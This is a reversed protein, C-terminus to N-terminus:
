EGPAGQGGAVYRSATFNIGGIIRQTQPDRILSWTEEFSGFKRQM